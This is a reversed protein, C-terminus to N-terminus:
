PQLLGFVVTFPKIYGGQTWTCPRTPFPLSISARSSQSCGLNLLTWTQCASSGRQFNRQPMRTTSSSESFHANDVVSMACLSSADFTRDLQLPAFLLFEYFSLGESFKPSRLLGNTSFVNYIVWDDDMPNSHAQTPQKSLRPISTARRPAKISALSWRFM